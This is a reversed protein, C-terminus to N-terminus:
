YKSVLHFVPFFLYVCLSFGKFEQSHLSLHPTPKRRNAISVEPLSSSVSDGSIILVPSVSSVSTVLLCGPSVHCTHHHLRLHSLKIPQLQLTLQSIQLRLSGLLKRNYNASIYSFMSHYQYFPFFFFFFSHLIKNTIM